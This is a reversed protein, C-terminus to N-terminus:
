DSNPLYYLKANAGVTRHSLRGQDVLSELREYVGRKSISVRDAVDEAKVMPFSVERVAQLLEDDSVIPQPGRKSKSMNGNYNTRPLLIAVM